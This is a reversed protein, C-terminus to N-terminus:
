CYELPPNTKNWLLVHRLSCLYFLDFLAEYYHDHNDQGTQDIEELVGCIEDDEDSWVEFCDCDFDVFVEVM